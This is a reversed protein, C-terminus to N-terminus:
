TRGSHNLHSGFHLTNDRTRDTDASSLAINAAAAAQSGAGAKTSTGDTAPRECRLMLAREQARNAQVHFCHRVLLRFCVLDQIFPPSFFHSQGPTQLKAATAM